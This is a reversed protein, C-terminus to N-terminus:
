EDERTGAMSWKMWYSKVWLVNEKKRLVLVSYLKNWEHVQNKRMASERVFRHIYFEHSSCPLETTPVHVAIDARIVHLARVISQLPIMGPWKVAAM